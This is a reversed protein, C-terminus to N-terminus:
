ICLCVSVSMCLCAINTPEVPVKAASHHQQTDVLRKIQCLANDLDSSLVRERDASVALLEKLKLIATLAVFAEYQEDELFDKDLSDFHYAANSGLHPAKACEGLVHCCFRGRMINISQMPHVANAEHGARVTDGMPVPLAKSLSAPRGEAGTSSSAYSLALTKDFQAEANQTQAQTFFQLTSIVSRNRAEEVAHWRVHLHVLPRTGQVGECGIPQGARDTLGFWGDQSGKKSVFAAAKPLKIQGFHMDLFAMKHVVEVVLSEDQQNKRIPIEFIGGWVPNTVSSQNALDQHVMDTSFEKDACHLHVFVSAAGIQGVVPLNKAESVVIQLMGVIPEQSPRPTAWGIASLGRASLMALPNNSDTDIDPGGGQGPQNQAYQMEAWTLNAKKYLWDDEDTAKSLPLQSSRHLEFSETVVHSDCKGKGKWFEARDQFTSTSDGAKQCFFQLTLGSGDQGDILAHVTKMPLHDISETNVSVLRDGRNVSGFLPSIESILHVLVPGKDELGEQRRVAVGVGGLALRARPRSTPEFAGTPARQVSPSRQDIPHQHEPRALLVPMGNSSRPAADARRPPESTTSSFSIFTGHQAVELADAVSSNRTNALEHSLPMLMESAM